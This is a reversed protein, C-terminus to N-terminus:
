NRHRIYTHYADVFIRKLETRFTKSVLINTYCDIGNDIYYLFFALQLVSQEIVQRDSTKEDYQTIQQYILILTSPFKCIFFAIINVLLMRVLQQDKSRLTAPRGIMMNGTDMSKIEPRVRSVTRINKVTWCGFIIMLATPLIGNVIFAHYSMFVTYIGPQYYCVFYGSGFQLIKTLVLAHSQFIMWFLSIGIMSIIIMRRTSRQRTVANPSTIFTRDISALIIFSSQFCGLVVASYFHFRCFYINTSSPDINYGTALVALFLGLYFNVFNILNVAILCITCPNKRLTSKSFVMLNLICSISGIGMLVPGAISYVNQQISLLATAVSM